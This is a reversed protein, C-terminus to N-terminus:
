GVRSRTYKLTQRLTRSHEWKYAKEELNSCSLRLYTAKYNTKLFTMLKFQDELFVLSRPLVFLAKWTTKLHSSLGQVTLLDNDSFEGETCFFYLSINKIRKYLKLNISVM